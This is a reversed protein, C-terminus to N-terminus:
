RNCFIPLLTLVLDPEDELAYAERELGESILPTHSGSGMSLSQNIAYTKSATERYARDLFQRAVQEEGNRHLFLSLPMLRNKGETIGACHQMAHVVEHGITEYISPADNRTAAPCVWISRDESHYSALHGPQCADFRKLGIKANRLAEGWAQPNQNAFPDQAQAPLAALLLLATATASFLQTLM